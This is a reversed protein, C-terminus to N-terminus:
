FRYNVSASGLLSNANLEGTTAGTLVGSLEFEKYLLTVGAAATTNNRVSDRKNAPDTQTQDRTYGLVFNQSLSGRVIFWDNMKQEFGLVFPLTVNTIKFIHKLVRDYKFSLGYYVLRDESSYSRDTVGAELTEVKVVANLKSIPTAIAMITKAHSAELFTHYNDGGYEAGFTFTPDKTQQKSEFTKQSKGVVNVSTYFEFKERSFGLRGGLTKQGQDFAVNNQRDRSYFVSAGLPGRAWFLEVPNQELYYSELDRLRKQQTDMHGLYVGVSSGFKELFIGGEAKPSSSNQTDGWEATLYKGLESVHAPNIFITQSNRLFRAGRLAENKAKSAFVEPTAGLMLLIVLILIKM